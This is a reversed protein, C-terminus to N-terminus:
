HRHGRVPRRRLISCAEGAKRLSITAGRALVERVTKIQWVYWTCDRCTPLHAVLADQAEEPAL